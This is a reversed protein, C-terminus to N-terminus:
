ERRDLGVGHGHKGGVHVEKGQLLGVRHVRLNRGAGRRRSGVVRGGVGGDPMLLHVGM